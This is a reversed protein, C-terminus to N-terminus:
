GLDEVDAQGIVGRPEDGPARTPRWPDRVPQELADAVVGLDATAIVVRDGLRTRGIGKGQELDVLAPEVGHVALEQARDGLVM